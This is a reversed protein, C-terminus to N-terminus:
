SPCTPFFFQSNHLLHSGLEPMSTTLCSREVSSHRPVNIGLGVSVSVACACLCACVCVMDTKAHTATAAVRNLPPVWSGGLARPYQLAKPTVHPVRPNTIGRVGSSPVPSGSLHTALPSKSHHVVLTCLLVFSGVVLSPWLASPSGCPPASPGTRQASAHHALCTDESLM